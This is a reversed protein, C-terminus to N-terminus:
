TAPPVNGPPSHAGPESIRRGRTLAEDQLRRGTPDERGVAGLDEELGLVQLVRFYCAISCRGEGKELAHLTSRSLGAREALCAASLRRRLRALRLNRGMEVLPLGDGPPLERRIRGM